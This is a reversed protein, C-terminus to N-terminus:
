QLPSSYSIFYNVPGATVVACIETNTSFLAQGFPAFAVFPNNTGVTWAPTLTVGPTACNVGTGSVLQVTATGAGADDFIWGCVSNFNASSTPANIITTTGTPASGQAPQGLNPAGGCVMPGGLTNGPQIVGTLVPNVTPGRVTGAFSHSAIGGSVQTLGSGIQSGSYWASLTCNATDFSLLNFRVQPYVGAGAWVETQPPPGQMVFANPAGFGTWRTGDFSFELRASITPTVVGCMAGGTAVLLVIHAGQGINNVVVSPGTTSTNNFIQQFTSQQGFALGSFALFFLGRGLVVM